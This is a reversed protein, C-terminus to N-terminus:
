LEYNPRIPQKRAFHSQRQTEPHLARNLLYLRRSEVPFGQIKTEVRNRLIGKRLDFLVTVGGAEVQGPASIMEVNRGTKTVSPQYGRGLIRRMKTPGAMIQQPAYRMPSYDITGKVNACHM